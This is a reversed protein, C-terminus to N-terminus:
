AGDEVFRQVSTSEPLGLRLSRHLRELLTPMLAPGILGESLGLRTRPSQMGGRTHRRV